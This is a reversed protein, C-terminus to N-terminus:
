MLRCYDGNIQAGVCIKTVIRLDSIEFFQLIRQSVIGTQTNLLRSTASLFHLSKRM